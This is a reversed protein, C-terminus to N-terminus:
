GTPSPSSERCISKKIKKKGSVTLSTGDDQVRHHPLFWAVTRQPGTGELTKRM